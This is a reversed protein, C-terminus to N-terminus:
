GPTDDIGELASDMSALKGGVLVREDKAPKVGDVMLNVVRVKKDGVWPQSFKLDPMRDRVRKWFENASVPRKGAENTVFAKYDDYVAQKSWWVLGGACTAAERDVLWAVVTDSQRRNEEELERVAKPLVDPFGGRKVLRSAGALIWDLVQAMEAPDETILKHYDTIRKRTGDGDKTSEGMRVNFPIALVKRWFGHEHGSVSFWENVNFFMTAIPTTTYADRGKAEVDVPDRSIIAKLVDQVAQTLVKPMESAFLATKDVVGKMAFQGDLKDVRIAGSRPHLARLVHLFTSKGNSGSGVLFIGKELCISLFSSATAEQLLARVELDPQFLDLYQGWRSMPDVEQPFYRGDARVLSRDFKAPVQYTIGLNPDPELVAINGDKLVELYCGPVPIIARGGTNGMACEPRGLLELAATEMCSKAMTKNAKDSQEQKLWRYAHATMRKPHQLDWYEGTWQYISTDIDGSPLNGGIAFMGAGVLEEAYRQEVSADILPPMAQGPKMTGNENWASNKAFSKQKGAKAGNAKNPRISSQTTAEKDHGNVRGDSPSVNM